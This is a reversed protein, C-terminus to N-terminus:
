QSLCYQYSFNQYKESWEQFIKQYFLDKEERVGFIFHIHINADNELIHRTQFYLPAFGTGTGIFIM